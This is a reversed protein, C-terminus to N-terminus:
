NEPTLHVRFSHAKNKLSEITVQSVIRLDFDQKKFIEGRDSKAGFSRLVVENSDSGYKVLTVQGCPENHLSDESPSDKSYASVTLLLLLAITNFM